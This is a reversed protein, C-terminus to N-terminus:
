LSFPLRIDTQHVHENHMSQKVIKLVEPPYSVWFHPSEFTTPYLPAILPAHGFREKVHEYAPRVIHKIFWREHEDSMDYTELFIGHTVFLSLLHKYHELLNERHHRDIWDADDPIDFKGFNLETFLRAHFDVLNEGWLTKIESFMKGDATNFDVVSIKQYQEHLKGNKQTLRVCIPLKCLAKKVQNQSVFLSKSDQTAVTKMGLHKVLHFFRLTEFNPTILYRSIYLIPEGECYQPIDGSLYEEVRRKLEPDQRRRALEQMAEAPTRMLDAPDEAAPGRKLMAMARRIVSWRSSHEM